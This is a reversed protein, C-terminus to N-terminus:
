QTGGTERLYKRALQIAQKDAQALVELRDFLRAREDRIGNQRESAAECEECHEVGFDFYDDKGSDDGRCKVKTGHLRGIEVHIEYLRVLIDQVEPSKSKLDQFWDMLNTRRTQFARKGAEQRSRYRAVGSDDKHPAVDQERWLRMPPGSRYHPNPVERPPLGFKEPDVGFNEQYWKKTHLEYM